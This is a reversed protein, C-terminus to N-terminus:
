LTRGQQAALWTTAAAWEGSSLDTRAIVIGAYVDVPSWNGATDRAYAGLACRDIETYAGRSASYADATGEVGDVWPTIDGAGGDDVMAVVVKANTSIAGTNGLDGTSVNSGGDNVIRMAFQNNLTAACQFSYLAQGSANNAEVWVGSQTDLATRRLAFMITAGGAAAIGMGSSGNFLRDDTNDFSLYRNSGDHKYLPRSGSTAQDMLFGTREWKLRYVLDGDSSAPTTGADTFVTDSNMVSFWDGAESALWLNDPTWVSSAGSLAPINPLRGPQFQWM